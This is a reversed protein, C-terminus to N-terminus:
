PSATRGNRWDPKSPANPELSRLYTVIQRVQEDTMTGGDDLSWAPMDSGSVGGSILLQMQADTTTKLFEKANLTPGSGGEARKGHCEACSASFLTRGVKTYSATQATQADKRLGPERVRYAVFGAILVIMFVLGWVLYRDLSRELEAPEFPPPHPADRPVDRV